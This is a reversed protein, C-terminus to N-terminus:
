YVYAILRGGVGKEKAEEHTMIGQNTSVILFGFGYAPLYRKEFKEYEDKKVAYRPRIAGCSNINGKLEVKIIGGRGNEIHEFEGVYDHKQMIRLVEKILKSAPKIIAVRKGAHECNKINSLANSLTDVSMLM